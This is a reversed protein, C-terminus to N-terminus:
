GVRLRMGALRGIRKGHMSWANLRQFTSNSTPYSERVGVGEFSRIGEFAPQTATSLVVTTGYHTVLERLGDLITELLHAPLAQVEDLIIVSRALRHLKRCASVQNSFLSDFLQVTTTVVVPADWNEAALRKWVTEPAYEESDVEATSGSHHELVPSMSDGPREFIARYTGATQQTITIFPVAVIM